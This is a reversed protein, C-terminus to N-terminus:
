GAVARRGSRGAAQFHRDLDEARADPALDLALDLRGAGDHRAVARSVDLIAPGTLGFHAFLLAERRELLTPGGGAPHEGLRRPRDAGELGPVWAADVRLPVLAPRPEVISHGFRRAIAYGDGSTGCGPYSQGGVAVIVRRARRVGDPLRLAFAGRSRRSTRVPRM